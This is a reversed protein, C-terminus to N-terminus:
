YADRELSLEGRKKLRAYPSLMEGPRSLYVEGYTAGVVALRRKLEQVFARNDSPKADDRISYKLGRLGALSHPSMSLGFRRDSRHEVIVCLGGRASNECHYKTGSERLAGAVEPFNASFYEAWSDLNSPLERNM